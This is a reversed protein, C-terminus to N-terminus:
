SGKPLSSRERQRQLNRDWYASQRGGLSWAVFPLALGLLVGLPASPAQSAVASIRSHGAPLEVAYYGPSVVRPTVGEGNVKLMWNPHASARLVLAVGFDSDVSATYSGPAHPGEILHVQSLDGCAGRRGAARPFESTVLETLEEPNILQNRGAPQRLARVLEAHLAQSTGVAERTICGVGFYDSGIVREYLRVPGFQGLLAFGRAPEAALSAPLLLYRIGLAASRMALGSEQPALQLNAEHLLGVHAGVGSTAALPVALEREFGTTRACATVPDDAGPDFWLRGSTLRKLQELLASFEARSPGNPGCPQDHTFHAFQMAWGALTRHYGWYTFAALLVACSSLGVIPLARGLPRLAQPLRLSVWHAARLIASSLAGQHLELVVLLSGCFVVPLLALARLPQFVRLLAAAGSDSLTPGSICLAVGVAQACLAARAPRSKCLKSSLLVLSALGVSTLLAPREADLLEGDIFWASLQKPGFGNQMWKPLIPWEFPVGLSAIGPGYTLLAILLALALSASCRVATKRDALLCTCLGLLLASVCAVQPHALVSLGAWALAWLTSGKALVNAAWLVVCPMCVVQSLLGASAFAGVGGIFPTHPSLWAYALAACISPLRHASNSRAVWYVIPPLALMSGYGVLLTALKVDVGLQAPIAVALWGLVPYHIALPFGGVYRDSWTAAWGQDFLHQAVLAHSGADGPLYGRLSLAGNVLPLVDGQAAVLAVLVVWERRWHPSPAASRPSHGSRLDFALFLLAALAFFGQLM